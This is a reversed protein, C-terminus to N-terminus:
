CMSFCLPWSVITRDQRLRAVGGQDLRTREDQREAVGKGRHGEGEPNRVQEAPRHPPPVSFYSSVGTLFACTVFCCSFRERAWSSFSRVRVDRKLSTSKVRAVGIEAVSFFRDFRSSFRPWSSKFIKGNGRHSPREVPFFLVPEYM